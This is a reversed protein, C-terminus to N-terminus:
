HLFTMYLLVGLILIISGTLFSPVLIWNLFASFFGGMIVISLGLTIIKKAPSSIDFILNIALFALLSGTWLPKSDLPVGLLLHVSLVVILMLALTALGMFLKRFFRDTFKLM